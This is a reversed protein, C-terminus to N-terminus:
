KPTDVANERQSDTKQLCRESERVSHLFLRLSREILESNNIKLSERLNMLELALDDPIRSSITTTMKEGWM